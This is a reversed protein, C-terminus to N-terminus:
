SRVQLPLLKDKAVLRPQREADFQVLVLDSLTDIDIVSGYTYRERRSYVRQGLYLEASEM